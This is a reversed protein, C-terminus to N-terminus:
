SIGQLNNESVDHPRLMARRLYARRMDPARSSAFRAVTACCASRGVGLAIDVKRRSRPTASAPVQDIARAAAECRTGASLSPRAIDTTLRPTEAAVRWEVEMAFPPMDGGMEAHDRAADAAFVKLLATDRQLLTRHLAPHARLAAPLTLEVESEASKARFALPLAASAAPKPPAPAPRDRDCGALGLGGLMVGALLARLRM